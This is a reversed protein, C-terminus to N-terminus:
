ESVPVPEGSDVDEYFVAIGNDLLPRKESHAMWPELFVVRVSTLPTGDPLQGNTIISRLYYVEYGHLHEGHQLVCSYEVAGSARDRGVPQLHEEGAEYVPREDDAVEPASYKTRGPKAARAMQWQPALTQRLVDARSVIDQCRTLLRQDGFSEVHWGASWFDDPREYEAAVEAPSTLVLPRKTKALPVFPVCAGEGKREVAATMPVGRELLRRAVHTLARVCVVPDAFLAEDPSLAISFYITEDRRRGWSIASVSGFGIVVSALDKCVRPVAELLAALDTEPSRKLKPTNPMPSGLGTVLPWKFDATAHRVHALFDDLSTSSVVTALDLHLSM